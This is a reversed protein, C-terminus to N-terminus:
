NGAFVNNIFNGETETKGNSYYLTGKGNRLGNKWEGIYYQGNEWIYKGNGEPKNNVWDGEYQINGNSYYEIGKGNRLGNKYQGIYYEGNEWIYKGNGDFKGNVRQAWRVYDM